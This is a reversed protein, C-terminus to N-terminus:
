KKPAAAQPPQDTELKKRAEEAKKQLEEQLKQQQAQLAKPDLPAGDYAKGFDTLPLPLSIVSKFVNFAQVTLTKGKKLKDITADDANYEASCGIQPSCVAYPARALETQDILVRTGNEIQVAIPIIVQLKRPGGEPTIIQALIVPQGTQLRGDARVVCVEKNNTEPGKDCIKTWPSYMLEPPQQQTQQQQQQQQPAPQPQAQPPKPAPPKPKTQALAPGVTVTALVAAATAALVRGWLRPTAIRFIM